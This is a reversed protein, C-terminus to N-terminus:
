IKTFWNVQLQGLDGKWPLTTFFPGFKLRIRM